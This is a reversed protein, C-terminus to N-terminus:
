KSFESLLCTLTHTDMPTHLAIGQFQKQTALSYLSMKAIMDNFYFIILSYFYLYMKM